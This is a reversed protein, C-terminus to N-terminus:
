PASIGTIIFLLDLIATTSAIGVLVIDEGTSLDGLPCVKGANPSLYYSVGQTFPTGTTGVKGAATLAAFYKGDGSAATLALASVAEEPSTGVAQGPVYKGASNKYIVDGEAVAAGAQLNSLGSSSESTLTGWTIDAM